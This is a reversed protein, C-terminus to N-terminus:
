SMERSVYSESSFEDQLGAEIVSQPVREADMVESILGEQVLKRRHAIFIRAVDKTGRRSAFKKWHPEIMNILDTLSARKIGLAYMATVFAAGQPAVVGHLPTEGDWNLEIAITRKRRRAGLFTFVQDETPDSELPFLVPTGSKLSYIGDRPMGDNVCIVLRPEQDYVRTIRYISRQNMKRLNMSLQRPHAIRFRDGENLASLRRM